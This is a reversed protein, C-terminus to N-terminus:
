KPLRIARVSPIRVGLMHPLTCWAVPINPHPLSLGSEYGYLRHQEQAPLASSFVHHCSCPYGSWGWVYLHLCPGPAAPHPPCPGPLM